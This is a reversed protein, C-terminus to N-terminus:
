ALAKVDASCLPFGPSTSLIDMFSVILDSLSLLIEASTPCPPGRLSSSAFITTTPPAPTIFESPKEMTLCSEAASPPSTPAVRGGTIFWQISSSRSMPWVPLVTLGPSKNDMPAEPATCYVAPITSEPYIAAMFRSGLEGINSTASTPMTDSALFMIGRIVFRIFCSTILSIASKIFISSPPPVPVPRPSFILFILFAFSQVM